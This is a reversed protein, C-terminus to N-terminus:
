ENEKTSIKYIKPADTISEKIIFRIKNIDHEGEAFIEPEDHLNNLYDSIVDSKVGIILYIANSFNLRKVYLLLKIFDWEFEVKTLTSKSKAELILHQGDVAESINYSNHLVFDPFVTINEVSDSNKLEKIKEKFNPPVDIHKAIEGSILNISADNNVESLGLKKGYQYALNIIFNREYIHGWSDDDLKDAVSGPNIDKLINYCIKVEESCERESVEYLKYKNM